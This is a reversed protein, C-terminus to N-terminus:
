VVLLLESPLRLVFAHAPELLLDLEVEQSDKSPEEAVFARPQEVQVVVAQQAEAEVVEV